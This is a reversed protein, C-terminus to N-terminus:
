SYNLKRVPVFIQATCAMQINMQVRGTTQDLQVEGLSIPWANRIISTAIDENRTNMLVVELNKWYYKPVNYGGTRPNQVLAQWDQFYGITSASADEFVTMNFGDISSTGAFTLTTGAVEKQITNFQAFPLNVSECYSTPLTRGGIVPFAKLYWKWTQMPERLGSHLQKLKNLDLLEKGM